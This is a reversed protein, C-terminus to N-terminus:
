KRSYCGNSTRQLLNDRVLNRLYKDISSVSLNIKEGLKILANREYVEGAKILEFFRHIGLTSNISGGYKSAKNQKLYEYMLLNHKLCPMVISWATEFDVNECEIDDLDVVSSGEAKRFVTLIMAIRYWILGFRKIFSSSDGSTIKMYSDYTSSLTKNLLGEQEKTFRFNVNFNSIYKCTEFVQDSIADFKAELQLENKSFVDRWLPAADFAYFIFRSFLGNSSDQILSVVQDPTSSLLLSIKPCNIEAFERDKKRSISITEHHFAKRMIDSYGGWDQKWTNLLTDAETEFIMGNGDNDQLHTIVSAASSNGPIFLLTRKPFPIEDNKQNSVDNTEDSKETRKSKSKKLERKANNYEGVAESFLSLRNEHIKQAISKAFVMIGKGAAPPAVIYGNLNAFVTRGDYLGKVTPITSSLVIISSLLLVDRERSSFPEVIDQLIKPLDKYANNYLFPTKKLEKNFLLIEIDNNSDEVDKDKNSKSTTIDIITPITKDEMKLQTVDEKIPKIIMKLTKNRQKPM